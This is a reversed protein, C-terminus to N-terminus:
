GYRIGRRMARQRVLTEHLRDRAAAAAAAYAAAEDRQHVQREEETVGHRLLATGSPRAMSRDLAGEFYRHSLGSAWYRIADFTAQTTERETAVFPQDPFEDPHVPFFVCWADWQGADGPAAYVQAIFREDRRSRIEDPHQHVYRM